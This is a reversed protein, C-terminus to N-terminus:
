RAPKQISTVSNILLDLRAQPPSVEITTGAPFRLTERFYYIKNYAPNFNEVWILPEIEGSPYRAVAQLTSNEGELRPEVGLAAVAHKLSTSGTIHLLASSNSKDNMRTSDAPTTFDPAAPMYAPNGEPEGGDVWEAIIELDEQPLGRDDKFEGFGKVANWPPMRRELVQQKISEAWPRAERFTMLSFASGGPHHCSVCNRYVVRSVDASWTIKTTYFTHGEFLLAVSLLLGIILIARRV